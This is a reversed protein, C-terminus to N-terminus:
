FNGADLPVWTNMIIKVFDLWQGIDQALQIRKIGM